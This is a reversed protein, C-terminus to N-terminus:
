LLYIVSLHYKSCKKWEKAQTQMLSGISQGPSLGTSTGSNMTLVSKGVVNKLTKSWLQKISIPRTGSNKLPLKCSNNFTNLLGQDAVTFKNM